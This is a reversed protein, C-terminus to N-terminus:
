ITQIITINYDTNKLIHTLCRDLSAVLVCLGIWARLKTKGIALQDKKM